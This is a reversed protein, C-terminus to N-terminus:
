ITSVSRCTACTSSRGSTRRTSYRGANPNSKMSGPRTLKVLAGPKFHAGEIDVSVWRHAGNSSNSSNDSDDSNDQEGGGGQDPSIRTISLPLLDARLTV